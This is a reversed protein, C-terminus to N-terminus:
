LKARQEPTMLARLRSDDGKAEKFVEVREGTSERLSKEMALLAKGQEDVAIGSGFRVIVHHPPLDPVSM